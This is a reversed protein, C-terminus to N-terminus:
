TVSACRRLFAVVAAIERQLDDFSEHDGALTLLEVADHRRAAHLRHADAVPVVRDQEGHVLLVPCDLRAISREPAIDDFRHGITDQVYRLVYRGVAAPIRRPAMWRQMMDRPHAFASVSVVALVDHRNAASADSRKAVAPDGAAAGIQDHRNAAAFLVAGAGVSHGLLAIRRSDIAPQQALWDFAHNVDEAFRPLSAFTDGDSRGHCRADVLLTAFGAHHLPAAIPLMMQANGGWGHLVIVAPSPRGATSAPVLWAHLRKDNATPIWVTEFDLGESAPTTREIVRPAALSSRIARHALARGVWWALPLGVLLTATLSTM